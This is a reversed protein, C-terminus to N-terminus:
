RIVFYNSEKFQNAVSRFVLHWTHYIFLIGSKFFVTYVSYKNTKFMVSQFFWYLPIM